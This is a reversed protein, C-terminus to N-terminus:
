SLSGQPMTIFIGNNNKNISGVISNSGRAHFLFCIGKLLECYRIIEKFGIDGECFVLQEVKNHKVIEFISDLKGIASESDNDHIAVRGILTVPAHAHKLLQILENFHSQSGIVLTNKNTTFHVDKNKNSFVKILALSRALEIAIVMFFSRAKSEGYHKRVFLKMSGYFHRIHSPSTKQTSEGKFHIITTGPYYFSKLGSQQLRYSLDIDEGYMFFDEDFGKVSKLAKKTLMMFAGALVDVENSQNENIHPAYYKAFITSRPFLKALGTMKFLTASSSPFSRKSEKLFTGSGDIMRVGIAGCEKTSKLFGICKLFCDEAVITDPNLFLIYRGKVEKLVSNSAKAFGTNENSWKFIIGPFRPELYERSDDTSNNDIVFIESEIKSCAKLVAYLCQELFYKVNYNVIIISLDM